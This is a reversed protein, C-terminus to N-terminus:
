EIYKEAPPSNTTRLKLNNDIQKQAKRNYQVDSVRLEDNTKKIEFVAVCGNCLLPHNKDEWHERYDETHAKWGGTTDNSLKNDLVYNAFMMFWASHGGILITEFGENEKQLMFELFKNLTVYLSDSKQKDNYKINDWLKSYSTTMNNPLEDETTCKFGDNSNLIMTEDLHFTSKVNSNWSNKCNEKGDLILVQSANVCELERLEPRLQVSKVADPFVKKYHLELTQNARQLPSALLFHRKTDGLFTLYDTDASTEVDGNGKLKYFPTYLMDIAGIVPDLIGQETLRANCWESNFDEPHKNQVSQGHRVFAIKLGSTCELFWLILTKKQYFKM